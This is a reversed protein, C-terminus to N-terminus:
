VLLQLSPLDRDDGGVHDLLHLEDLRPLRELLRARLRVEHRQLRARDLREVVEVGRVVLLDVLRDLLDVRRVVVRQQNRAADAVGVLEAAVLVDDTEHLLEEGRAFGHSRDTVRRPDEDLRADHAVPLQRRPRRQLRVDAVRAAVPDVLLDDDVVPEDRTALGVVDRREVVLHDLLEALPLVRALAHRGVRRRASRRPTGAVAASSSRSPVSTSAFKWWASAHYRANRACPMTRGTHRSWRWMPMPPSWYTRATAPSSTSSRSPASSRSSCADCNRGSRSSHSGSSPARSRTAASLSRPRTTTRALEDPSSSRSKKRSRSSTRSSTSPQVEFSSTSRDFGCGSTTRAAISFAPASSATSTPSERQSMSDAALAPM